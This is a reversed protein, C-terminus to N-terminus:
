AWDVDSRILDAPVGGVMSRPPVDRTVVSGAAIVAGEGITVGKLITARAGIWVHNGIRVPEDRGGRSRDSGHFDTDMIVTDFALACDAGISVSGWCMLRVGSNLITGSGISLSGKEAVVIEVGPAMLVVGDTRLSSGEKMTIRVPRDPSLHVVEAAATLGDADPFFGLYLRGGLSMESTPHRDLRASWMARIPLKGIEKPRYRYSLVTSRVAIRPARFVSLLRM